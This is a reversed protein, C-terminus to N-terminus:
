SSIKKITYTQNINYHSSRVFCIQTGALLVRRPPPAPTGLGVEALHVAEPLAINYTEYCASLFIKFDVFFHLM